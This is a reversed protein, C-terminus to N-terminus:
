TASPTTDLRRMVTRRSANEDNERLRSDLRESHQAYDVASIHGVSVGFQM